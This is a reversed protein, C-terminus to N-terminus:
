KGDGRLAFEDLKGIGGCMPCPYERGAVYGGLSVMADGESYSVVGDGECEDCEVEVRVAPPDIEQANRSSVCGSMFVCLLASKMALRNEIGPVQLVCARVYDSMSKGQVENEKSAEM